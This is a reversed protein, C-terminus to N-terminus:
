AAAEEAEQYRRHHVTTRARGEDHCAIQPEVQCEPCCATARAWASRRAPHVDPLVRGNALVRCPRHAAAGCHPCDVARAPHQGARLFHRLSDPM